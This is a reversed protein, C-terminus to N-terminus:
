PVHYAPSGSPQAVKRVDREQGALVYGRIARLDRTMVRFIGAAKFASLDCRDREKGNGLIM